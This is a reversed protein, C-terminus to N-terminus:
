KPNKSKRGVMDAARSMSQMRVTIGNLSQQSAPQALEKRQCLKMFVSQLNFYRSSAARENRLNVSAFDRHVALADCRMASRHWISPKRTVNLDKSQHQGKKNEKKGKREKEEKGKREGSIFFSLM